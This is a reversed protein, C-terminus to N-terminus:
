TFGTWGLLWRECGFVEPGGAIFFFGRRLRDPTRSEQSGSPCIATACRPPLRGHKRGYSLQPRGRPRTVRGGTEMLSLRRRSLSISFHVFSYPIARSFCNAPDMFERARTATRRRPLHSSNNLIQKGTLMLRTQVHRSM